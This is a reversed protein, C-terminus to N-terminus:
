ELTTANSLKSKEAIIRLSQLVGGLFSNFSYLDLSMGNRGTGAILLSIKRGNFLNIFLLRRSPNELLVPPHVDEIEISKMDDYALFEDGKASLMHIGKMTVLISENDQASKYIGLPREGENLHFSSKFEADNTVQQYSLLNNLYKEARTDIPVPMDSIV